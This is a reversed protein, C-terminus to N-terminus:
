GRKERNKKKRASRAPLIFQLFIVVRSPYFPLFVPSTIILQPHLFFFFFLCHVLLTFCFFFARETITVVISFSLLVMLFSGHVREYARTRGDHKSGEAREVIFSPFFFSFFFVTKLRAQAPFCRGTASIWLLLRAAEQLVCSSFFFSLCTTTCSATFFFFLALLLMCMSEMWVCVCAYACACSGSM